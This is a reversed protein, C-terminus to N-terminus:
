KWMEEDIQSQAELARDFEPDAVWTGAFADLDDHIVEGPEAVAAVILNVLFANLSVGERKLKRRIKEDTRPSINRITYQIRAQMKLIYQLCILCAVRM